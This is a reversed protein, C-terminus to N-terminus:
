RVYRGPAARASGGNRASGRDVGLGAHRLCAEANRPSTAISSPGLGASVRTVFHRSSRWSIAPVLESPRPRYWVMKMEEIVQRIVAFAHRGVKGDPAICYPRVNYLENIEKRPVFTGIEITRMSEIAIAELEEDTIEIYQRKGIEYAQVIEEEPVEEGTDEDVKRYRIRNGTKSNIQHFRVKERESRRRSCHFPAPYL